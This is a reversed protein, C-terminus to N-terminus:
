CLIFLLFFLILENICIPVNLVHRIFMCSYEFMEWCIFHACKTRHVLLKHFTNLFTLLRTWYNLWSPKFCSLTWQWLQFCLREETSQVSIFHCVNITWLIPSFFLRYPNYPQYTVMLICEKKKLSEWKNDRQLQSCYYHWLIPKFFFRIIKYLLCLSKLTIKNFFLANWIM